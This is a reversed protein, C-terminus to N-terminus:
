DHGNGEKVPAKKRRFRQFRLLLFLSVSYTIVAVVMGVLLSGIVFPVGEHLLLPPLTSLWDRFGAHLLTHLLRDVANPDYAIKFPKM